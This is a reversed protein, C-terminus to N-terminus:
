ELGSTRLSHMTSGFAFNKNPEPSWTSTLRVYSQAEFPKSVPRFCHLMSHSCNCRGSTAKSLLTTGNVNSTRNSQYYLRHMIDKLRPFANAGGSSMIQMNSGYRALRTRFTRCSSSIHRNDLSNAFMLYTYPPAYNRRYDANSPSPHRAENFIVCQCMGLDLRAIGGGTAASVM